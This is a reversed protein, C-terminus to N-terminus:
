VEPETELEFLELDGSTAIDASYTYVGENTAESIVLRNVYCYGGIGDLGGPRAIGFKVKAQTDNAIKLRNYGENNSDTKLNGTVTFTPALKLGPIREQTTADLEPEVDIMNFESALEGLNTMHTVYDAGTLPTTADTGLYFKSGRGLIYDSM